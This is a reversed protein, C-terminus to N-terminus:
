YDNIYHRHATFITPCQSKLSRAWAHFGSLKQERWRQPEACWAGAEMHGKAAQPPAGEIPTAGCSTASGMLPSAAAAAAEAVLASKSSTKRIM